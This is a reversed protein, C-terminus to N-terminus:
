QRIRLGRVPLRVSASGRRIREARLQHLKTCIYCHMAFSTGLVLGATLTGRLVAQLNESDMCSFLFLMVGAAIFEIVPLLRQLPTFCILVFQDAAKKMRAKQKRNVYISFEIRM